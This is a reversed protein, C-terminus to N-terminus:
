ACQALVHSTGGHFKELLQQDSRRSKAQQGRHGDASGLEVQGVHVLVGTGALVLDGAHGLEGVDLGGVPSILSEGVQNLAVAADGAVGVAGEFAALGHGAIFRSGQEVGTEIADGFHGVLELLQHSLELLFEGHQTAANIAKLGLDAFEFGVLEGGGGFELTDGGEHQAGVAEAAAVTVNRVEGSGLFSGGGEVVVNAQVEVGAEGTLVQQAGGQAGAVEGVRGKAITAQVLKLNGELFAAASANVAAVHNGDVAEEVLERDAGVEGGGDTAPNTLVVHQGHPGAHIGSVGHEVDEGVGTGGTGVVQVQTCTRAQPPLAAVEADTGVVHGSVAVATGGTGLGANTAAEIGTAADTGLSGLFGAGNLHGVATGVPAQSSGVVVAIANANGAAGGQGDSRLSRRGITGGEAEARDVGDADTAVPLRGVAAPEGRDAGTPAEVGVVDVVVGEVEVAGGALRPVHAQLPSIGEDLAVGEAHSHTLGGEDGTTAIDAAVVANGTGGM